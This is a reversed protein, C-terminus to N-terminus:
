IEYRTFVLSDCLHSRGPPTETSFLESTGTIIAEVIKSADAIVKAKFIMAIKLYRQNFSCHQRSNTFSDVHEVPKFDIFTWM